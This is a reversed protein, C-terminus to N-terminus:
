ARATWEENEHSAQIAMISLSLRCSVAASAAPQLSRMRQHRLRLGGAYRHTTMPIFSKKREIPEGSDRAFGHTADIKGSRCRARRWRLKVLPADGRGTAILSQLDADAQHQCTLVVRVFRASASEFGRPL